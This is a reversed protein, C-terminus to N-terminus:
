YVSLNQNNGVTVVIHADACDSRCKKTRKNFLIMELSAVFSIETIYSTETASCAPKFKVKNADRGYIAM